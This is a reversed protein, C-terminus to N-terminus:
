KLLEFHEGQLRSKSTIFLKIWIKNFWLCRGTDYRLNVLFTFKTFYFRLLAFFKWCFHFILLNSFEIFNTPLVIVWRIEQLTSDLQFSKLIPTTFYKISRFLGHIATFVLFPTTGSGPNSIITTWRGQLGVLPNDGGPPCIDIVTFGWVIDMYVYICIYIYIYVWVYIFICLWIYM